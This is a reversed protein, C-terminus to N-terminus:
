SSTEYKTGERLRGACRWFLWPIPAMALTCFALLSTAWGVGLRQYLQLAFLPFAASIFYRTFMAAGAASAGYLAGYTDMMFLQVSVYILISVTMSLCQFLMPVIWHISSRATWAFGFLTAPQIFSGVLAGFLRNEAPFGDGTGHQQQYRKLRPQYLYHDLVILPFPAIIAGIILGLFSLSQGTVGFDYYNEYVWPSAVVFLYILGFLFGNYTCVLTVIPETFLMHIPRVLQTRLFHQLFELPTYDDQPPGEVGLKKARRQLIIKKYSEKTFLIPVYIPILFFIITWQTWRWGKAQNVLGGVLPGCSAGVIPISFYFSMIVTRYRGAIHDIITASANGVAPAAFVGAFFRCITLSTVNSSFGAGLTFFAFLPSTILYVIKRGLTECLPSGLLPGLALGVTYLSLPLLAVEESVNFQKAVDLAGPSYVSAAFTSVFALFTVAFTTSIRRLLSFNRPNGQDNPGSWDRAHVIQSTGHENEPQANFM